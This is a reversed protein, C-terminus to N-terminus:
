KSEDCCLKQFSVLVPAEGKECKVTYTGRSVLSGFDSEGARAPGLDATQAAMVFVGPSIENVDGETAVRVGRPGNACWAIDHVNPANRRVTALIANVNLGRRDAFSLCVDKRETLRDAYIQSRLAFAVARDM